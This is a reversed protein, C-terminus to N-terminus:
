LSLAHFSVADSSVAVPPWAAFMAIRPLRELFRARAVFAALVFRPPGLTCSLLGGPLTGSPLTGSPLSGGSLSGSPLSGGSSSRVSM